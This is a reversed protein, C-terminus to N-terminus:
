AVQKQRWPRRRWPHALTALPSNRCSFYVYLIIMTHPTLLQHPSPSAPNAMQPLSPSLPCPCLALPPERSSKYPPKVDVKGCITHSGLVGTSNVMQLYLGTNALPTRSVWNDNNSFSVSCILNQLCEGRLFRNHMIKGNFFYFPRHNM